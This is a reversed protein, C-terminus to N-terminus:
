ELRGLFAAGNRKAVLLERGHKGVVAYVRGSGRQLVQKWVYGNLSLLILQWLEDLWGAEVIHLFPTQDINGRVHELLDVRLRELRYCVREGCVLQRPFRFILVDSYVLCAM